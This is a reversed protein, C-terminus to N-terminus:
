VHSLLAPRSLAVCAGCKRSDVRKKLQAGAFETKVKFLGCDCCKVLNLPVEQKGEFGTPTEEVSVPMKSESIVPNIIRFGKMLTINEPTTPVSVPLPPSCPLEEEDSCFSSSEPLNIDEDSPPPSLRSSEGHGRFWHHEMAEHFESRFFRVRTETDEQDFLGLQSWCSARVLAGLCRVLPRKWARPVAAEVEDSTPHGDLWESVGRPPHSLTHDMKMDDFEVAFQGIMNVLFV